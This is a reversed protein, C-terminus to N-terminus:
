MTLGNMSHVLGEKENYSDCEPFLLPLSAGAPSREDPRRRELGDDSTGDGAAAATVVEEREQM